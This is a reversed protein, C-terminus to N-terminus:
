LELKDGGGGDDKSEIFSALGPGRPCIVTLDSLSLSDNMAEVARFTM